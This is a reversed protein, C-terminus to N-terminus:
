PIEQLLQGVTKYFLCSVKKILHNGLHFGSFICVITWVASFFTKTWYAGAFFGFATKLGFILITNPPYTGKQAKKQRQRALATYNLAKKEGDGCRDKSFEVKSSQIGVVVVEHITDGVHMMTEGVVACSNPPSYVIGKVVGVESKDKLAKSSNLAVLQADTKDCKSLAGIGTGYGMFVAFAIFYYVLM